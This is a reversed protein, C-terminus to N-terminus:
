GIEQVFKNLGIAGIAKTAEALWNIWWTMVRDADDLAM